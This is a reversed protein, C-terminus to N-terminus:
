LLVFFAAVLLAALFLPASMSAWTIELPLFLGGEALPPWGYIALVVYLSQYTRSSVTLFPLYEAAEFSLLALFLYLEVPVVCLNPAVPVEDRLFLVLPLFFPELDRLLDLPAREADLSVVSSM